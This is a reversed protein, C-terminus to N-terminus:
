VDTLDGHGVWGSKVYCRVFITWLNHLLRGDIICIHNNNVTKKFNFRRCNTSCPGVGLAKAGDSGGRPFPLNKRPACICGHGLALLPPSPRTRVQKLGMSHGLLVKGMLVLVEDSVEHLGLM